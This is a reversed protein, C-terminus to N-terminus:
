SSKLSRVYDSAKIGRFHSTDIDNKRIVNSLEVFNSNTHAVGMATLCDPKNTSVSVAYVVSDINM